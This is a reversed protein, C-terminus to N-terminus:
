FIPPGCKNLINRLLSKLKTESKLFYLQNDTNYINVTAKNSFLMLFKGYSYLLIKQFSSCKERTPHYYMSSYQKQQNQRNKLTREWAIHRKVIKGPNGAIICNNPFKGKVVSGFGVICGDGIGAGGLLIANYAIWVHSGVIIDKTKNIEHKSISSYIFHSDCARIHIGSALMCDNGFIIRASQSTGLLIRSATSCGEGFKVHCQDGIVAHISLKSKDEINVTANDFFFNFLSDEVIRVNKGIILKNNKGYFNIGWCKLDMTKTIISNGNDDTFDKITKLTVM